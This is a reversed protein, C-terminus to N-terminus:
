QKKFIRAVGSEDFVRFGSRPAKEFFAMWTRHSAELKNRGYLKVYAPRVSCVREIEDALMKNSVDVQGQELRITSPVTPILIPIWNTAPELKAGSLFLGNGAKLITERAETNSPSLAFGSHVPKIRGILSPSVLLKKVIVERIGASSLKRFLRKDSGSASSNEKHSAKHREKNRTDVHINNNNQVVRAKKQGNRAVVAWSKDNDKVIRPLEIDKRMRLNPNQNPAIRPTAVAIKSLNKEKSKGKSSENGSGKNPRSHLPVRPPPPSSDTAAFNAIALNLYAKFAVIEEKEVEKTFITLTSDTSSIVTTCIMIRAHWAREHRQRTAIIEALEQSLYANAIDSNNRSNNQSREPIPRKSPAVPRLIPRCDTAKTTPTLNSPPPPPAISPPPNHIPPIPPPQNSEETSPAQIEQSIEMSDIM